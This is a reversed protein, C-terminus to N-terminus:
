SSFEYENPDNAIALPEILTAGAKLFVSNAPSGGIGISGDPANSALEIDFTVTYNTNPNLSDTPEDSDLRRFTEVSKLILSSLLFDFKQCKKTM